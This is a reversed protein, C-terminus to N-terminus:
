MRLVRSAFKKKGNIGKQQGKRCDKNLQPEEKWMKRPERQQQCRRYIEATQLQIGLSVAYRASRETTRRTRRHRWSLPAQVRQSELIEFRQWLVRKTIELTSIADSDLMRHETEYGQSLRSINTINAKDVTVTAAMRERQKTVRDVRLM